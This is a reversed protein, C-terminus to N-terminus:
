GEGKTLVTVGAGHSDLFPVPYEFMWRGKILTCLFHWIFILLVALETDTALHKAKKPIKM